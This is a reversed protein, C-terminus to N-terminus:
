RSPRGQRAHKALKARGHARTRLFLAELSPEPGGLERFHRAYADLLRRWDAENVGSEPRSELLLFSAALRGLDKERRRPSAGRHVGELDVLVPTNELSVRLNPAKLDRQRFGAAHLEAVLKALRTVLEDREAADRSTLAEDLDEGSIFETLLFTAGSRHDHLTAMHVPVALGTEELELGRTFSRELARQGRAGMRRKVFWAGDPSPGRWPEKGPSAAVLAAPRALWGSSLEPGVRPHLRATVCGRQLEFPQLEGRPKIPFLGM